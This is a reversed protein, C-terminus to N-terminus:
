FHSLVISNQKHFNVRTHAQNNLIDQKYLLILNVLILKNAGNKASTTEELIDNTAMDMNKIHLQCYNKNM